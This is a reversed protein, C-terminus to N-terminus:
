RRVSRHRRDSQRERHASAGGEHPITGTLRLVRLGDGGAAVADQFIKTPRRFLASARAKEIALDVSGLQTDQMREFVVLYGGIDVVAIAMNWKNKNAEAIAATTIQKASETSVSIGYAIQPPPPLPSQAVAIGSIM